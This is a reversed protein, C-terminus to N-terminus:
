GPPLLCTSRDGGGARGASLRVLIGELASPVVFPHLRLTLQRSRRAQHPMDLDSGMDGEDRPGEDPEGRRRPSPSPTLNRGPAVSDEAAPTGRQWTREGPPERHPADDQVAIGAVVVGDGDQQGRM